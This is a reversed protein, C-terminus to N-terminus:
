TGHVRFAEFEIWILQDDDISEEDSSSSGINNQIVQEIITEMVLDQNDPINSCSPQPLTAHVNTRKLLLPKETFDDSEDDSSPVYEDSSEGFPQDDNEDSLVECINMSALNVSSKIDDLVKSTDSTNSGVSQVLLVSSNDINKQKVIDSFLLGPQHVNVQSSGCAQSKAPEREEYSKLLSKQLQVTYELNTLLKKTSDLERNVSELEKRLLTIDTKTENSVSQLSCKCDDCLWFINECESFIKLWSDRVSVCSTHFKLKCLGCKVIKTCVIFNDSCVICVEVDPAM